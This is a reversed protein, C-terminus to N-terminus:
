GLKLEEVEAVRLGASLMIDIIALNRLRKFQNKELEVYSIFREQEEKTLWKSTDKEGVKDTTQVKQIKIRTMPNDSVLRQKTLYSFITKLSAVSKNITGLKRIFCNLFQHLHEM